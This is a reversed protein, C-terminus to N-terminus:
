KISEQLIKANKEILETKSGVCSLGLLNVYEDKDTAIFIGTRQEQEFAQANYPITKSAVQEYSDLINKSSDKHPKYYRTYMFVTNDNSNKLTNGSIHQIELNIGNQESLKLGVGLSFKTEDNIQFISQPCTIDLYSFKFRTSNNQTNIVADALVKHRSYLTEPINLYEIWDKYTGSYKTIIFNSLFKFDYVLGNWVTDTNQMGTLSFIGDPLPLSYNYVVYDAFPVNYATIIWKRGLNDIHESKHIPEGYSTITIKESAVQRTTVFAKALTDMLLKPNELYTQISIDDPKKLYSFILGLMSGTEIEGNNELKLSSINNPYFSDWKNKENLSLLYPFEPEYIANLLPNALDTKTFSEKGTYLYPQTLELTLDQTAKVIKNICFERTEEISKPLDFDFDHTHYFKQTLINPLNYYAELHIEGKNKPVENIQEIPLAYNLNESSNKMTVIGIVKGQPTVLPGGSNGPSAAASFRLWNWKGNRREPTESTLLGNRMVIGEGQANGVAFISSNKKYNKEIELGKANPENFDVVDFIAFDRDTAFKLINNIKYTKGETTRIFFKTLQSQRHFNLVHSATCFTKNKLLFATGISEYKDNRIQFPLRDLPLPKEYSLPDEQIKEVVIEFVNQQLQAVIKPKLVEQANINAVNLTFLLISFVKLLTKKM